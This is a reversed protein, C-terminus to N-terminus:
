MSFVMIRNNQNDTVLINGKKNIAISVPRNLEGGLKKPGGFSFLYHGENDFVLICNRYTDTVYVRQASDIAIGRPHAFEGEGNGSKGFKLLFNGQPDFKQV